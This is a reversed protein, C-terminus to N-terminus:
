IGKNAKAVSASQELSWDGGLARYINILNVIVTGQSSILEDQQEFLSREMDLVNQFDVLGTRYLITVLDVSDKAATVSDKLNDQRKNEEAYAVMNNEVDELAELVTQRYNFYAQEGAAEEFKINSGIRDADFIKWSFSPGFGWSINGKNFTGSVGSGASEFLFNGTLSFQPYLLATAVGIQATQAALQREASRIDPRQRIVDAPVGVSILGAPEPIPRVESLQENFSDPNDGILVALRHITQKLFEELRPINSKTRALNLEAQRVDRIPNVWVTRNAVSNAVTM